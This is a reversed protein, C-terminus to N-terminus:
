EKIKKESAIFDFYHQLEQKAWPTFLLENASGENTASRGLAQRVADLPAWRVAAVEEVQLAFSAAARCHPLTTVFCQTFECDHALLAGDRAFYKNEFLMADPRYAHLVAVDSSAGEHEEGELVAEISLEEALGRVAGQAYSENPKM